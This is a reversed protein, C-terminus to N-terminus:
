DRYDEGSKMMGYIICTLRKMLCRLAHKKSKGESVKKDFYAKAEPSWRIQNIAVLYIASNLRRNGINSKRYKIRKGSSRESPVVGAYKAFFDAKRFRKISGAYNIIKAALITSIGPMTTLNSGLSAVLLDLKEQLGKKLKELNKLERKKLKIVLSVGRKHEKNQALNNERELARLQNKIKISQKVLDEWYWVFKRLLMREPNLNEPAIKPLQNIKKSLVEAILRADLKDSKDKKTGFTRRQKTFLPNIEYVHNYKQTLFKLFINKEWGGGEIGLALNDPNSEISELWTLFQSIGQKSNEFRLDAKEEEFRNMALATHESTHSDVGVFTATNLDM